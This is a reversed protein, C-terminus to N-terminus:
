PLRLNFGLYIDGQVEFVLEFKCFKTTLFNRTETISLFYINPFYTDLGHQNIPSFDPDPM